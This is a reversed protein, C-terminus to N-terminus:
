SRAVKAMEVFVSRAESVSTLEQKFDLRHKIEHVLLDVGFQDLGSILVNEENKISLNLYFRAYERLNEAHDQNMHSVIKM